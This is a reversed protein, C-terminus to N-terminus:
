KKNEKIEILEIQRPRWGILNAAHFSSAAYLEAIQGTRKNRIIFKKDFKSIVSNYNNEKLHQLDKNTLPLNEPRESSMINKEIAITKTKDPPNFVSTSTEESVEVNTNSTIASNSVTSNVASSSVDNEVIDGFKISVNSTNNDSDSIVKIKDNEM